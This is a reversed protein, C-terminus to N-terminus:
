TACSPSSPWCAADASPERLYEALVRAAQPNHAVDALVAPAGPILQFRGALRVTELGRRVASEAVPLRTQVLQLLQLVASANLLQHKGPMAPLPLERLSGTSGRWNWGAGDMSYGFERGQRHLAIGQEDVYSLLAPPAEPDGLVAPHGRRYIGAKELAIADRSDGLWEQHDIDISAVLAADADIINVADLRGGLGVELIQADLGARRFIDLATLTGFEFYSLSTDGRAGDVRGFAECITADDVPEGDIQIRENYRLLHPSTYTGVRYGAARLIASLLAVSSGKGNTGGVTITFPAAGSGLADYVRRVRQLGLDIPKPHLTEQWALWEALTSFRM